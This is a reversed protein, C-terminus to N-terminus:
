KRQHSAPMNQLSGGVSMSVPVGNNFQYRRAKPARIPFSTNISESSECAGSKILCAIVRSNLAKMDVRECFDQLSKFPGGKRRADIISEVAGHGVNKVAGLGFRISRFTSALFTPFLTREMRRDLKGEDLLKQLAFLGGVDAKAEEIASYAGALAERVTVERGGVTAHHPGLGHVLEHMLIHTFFAEFDVNPQDAAASACFYDFLLWQSTAAVSM